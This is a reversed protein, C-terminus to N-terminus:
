MKYYDDPKEDEKKGKVKPYRAWAVCLLVIGIVSIIYYKTLLGILLLAFGSALTIWWKTM